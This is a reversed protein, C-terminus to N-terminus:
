ESAVLGITVTCTTILLDDVYMYHTCEIGGDRFYLRGIEFTVLRSAEIVSIFKVTCCLKWLESPDPRLHHVIYLAPLNYRTLVWPREFLIIVQLKPGCPCKGPILIGYTQIPVAVNVRSISSHKLALIPVNRIALFM